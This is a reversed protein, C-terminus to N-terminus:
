PRVPSRSDRRWQAKPPSSPWDAAATEGLVFRAYDQPTTTSLGEQYMATAWRLLAFSADPTRLAPAVHQAWLELERVTVTEERGALLEAIQVLSRALEADIVKEPESWHGQAYCDTYFGIQKVSNLLATHEGDRNVVDRLEHLRRAGKAALDPLIWAGNKARHDRYRRWEERLIDPSAQGVMGRLISVKGSEEISLTALAAATPFREAELLLKADSLLRRANHAAANIGEAALKPSLPGRYDEPRGHKM